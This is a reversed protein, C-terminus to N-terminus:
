ASQEEPWPLRVYHVTHGAVKDPFTEKNSIDTNLAISVSFGETGRELDVVANGYGLIGDEAERNAESANYAKMLNRGFEALVEPLEFSSRRRDEM